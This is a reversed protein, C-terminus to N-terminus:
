VGYLVVRKLSVQSAQKERSSPLFFLATMGGERLASMQHRRDGCGGSIRVKDGKPGAPLSAPQGNQDTVAVGGGAQFVIQGPSAIRVDGNDM